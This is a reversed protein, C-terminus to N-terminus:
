STHLISSSFKRHLYSLLFSWPCYDQCCMRPDQTFRLTNAKTENRWRRLYDYCCVCLPAKTSSKPPLSTHRPKPVWLRWGSSPALTPLLLHFATWSDQVQCLGLTRASWGENQRSDQLMGSQWEKSYVLSEWISLDQTECIVTLPSPEWWSLFWVRRHKKAFSMSTNLCSTLM